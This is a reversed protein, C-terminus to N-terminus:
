KILRVRYLTNKIFVTVVSGISLSIIAITRLINCTQFGAQGTSLGGQVMDVMVISFESMQTLLVSCLIICSNSMGVNALKDLQPPTVDKNQIFNIIIYNSFYKFGIILVSIFLLIPWTKQLEQINLMAGVWIFFMTMFINSIPECMEIIVDSHKYVNGLLLGAIFAGYIDSLGVFEAFTSFIFCLTIAFVAALEKGREFIYDLIQSLLSPKSDTLIKVILLLGIAVSVKIGLGVWSIGENMSRLAILMGILALDQAILIGIVSTGVKTNKKDRNELLKIVVASSNLALLCGSLVMTRITFVSNTKIINFYILIGILTVILIIICMGIKVLLRGHIKLLKAGYTLGFYLSLISIILVTVFALSNLLNAFFINPMIWVMLIVAFSCLIQLLVTKIPISADSHDGTFEDIDLELGALFMLMLLGIDGVSRLIEISSGMTKSFSPGLLIGSIIYGLLPPLKIRVFALGWIFSSGFFLAIKSILGSM